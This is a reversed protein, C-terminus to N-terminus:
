EYNFESFVFTYVIENKATENKNLLDNAKQTLDKKFKAWNNQDEVQALTVDQFYIGIMEKIVDVDADLKKEVDLGKITKYYKVAITSRLINSKVSDTSKLNFIKNEFLVRSSLEDDSPTTISDVHVSVKPSGSSSVLFFIVVGALIMTLLAVIVLLVIFSFGKGEL